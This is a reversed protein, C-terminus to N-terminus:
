GFHFLSFPTTNKKKLCISCQHATPCNWKPKHRYLQLGQFISCLCPNLFFIYLFFSHSFIQWIQHFNYVWLHLLSLLSWIWYVCTPCWWPMNDNFLSLSFFRVLLWLPVFIFIVASKNKISFLALSSIIFLVSLDNLSALMIRIGFSLFFCYSFLGVNSM